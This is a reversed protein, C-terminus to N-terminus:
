GGKHWLRSSIWDTSVPNANLWDRVAKTQNEAVWTDSGRWRHFWSVADEAYMVAAIPREERITDLASVPDHGSALMAAFGMSPGRNVGMHCHIMVKGDPEAMAAMAAEVGELFWSDPQKGGHDDVGVWTYVLDPQHKAVFKEDSHELRTDVIHTIGADVWQNLGRLKADGEPLDGSLVIQPTVWCLKRWYQMPEFRPARNAQKKAV